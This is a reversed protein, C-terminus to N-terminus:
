HSLVPLPAPGVEAERRRWASADENWGWRIEDREKSAQEAEARLQEERLRAAELANRMSALQM